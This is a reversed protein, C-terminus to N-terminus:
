RCDEELIRIAISQIEDAEMGSPSPDVPDSVFPRVTKERLLWRSSCADCLDDDGAKPRTNCFLCIRRDPLVLLNDGKM